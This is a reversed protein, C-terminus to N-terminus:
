PQIDKRSKTEKIMGWSMWGMILIIGVIGCWIWARSSFFTKTELKKNKKEFVNFTAPVVIPSNGPISEKFYALEYVPAKMNRGVKLTYPSAGDLYAVLYRDLQRIKISEIELPPNDYNDIVVVWNRAVSGKVDLMATGNSSIEFSRLHRRTKKKSGNKKVIEITEYLTALRKYFPSNAISFHIQDVWQLSDFSIYCHTQKSQASDAIAIRVNEVESYSADMVFDELYGVEIINLPLSASDDVNLRYYRYDSLPFDLVRIESTAAGNNINNLFFNEKLVYWRRKDDSGALTGYKHAEANKIRILFHNMKQDGPNEFTIATCCGPTQENSLINYAVFKSSLIRQAEDMMYQIEKGNKDFIRVNSCDQSLGTTVKPTLKIRYFGKPGDVSISAQGIYDQASAAWATLIMCLTIIKKLHRSKPNLQLNQTM